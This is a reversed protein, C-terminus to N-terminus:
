DVEIKTNQKELEEIRKTLEKISEVLLPVLKQYQVSLLKEQTAGKEIDDTSHEFNTIAEPLVKQVDQAILGVDRTGRRTYSSKESWDFTYGTLQKVKNIPSEIKILNEKVRKDSVYGIINGTAAVDGEFYGQYTGASKGHIAYKGGVGYVASGRTTFLTGPNQNELQFHGGFFDDETGSSHQIALGRVARIQGTSNSSDTNEATAFLATTATGDEKTTAETKTGIIATASAAGITGGDTAQSYLGYFTGNNFNNRINVISGNKGGQFFVFDDNFGMIQPLSVNTAHTGVSYVSGGNLLRIEPKTITTNSTTSPDFITISGKEDLKIVQQEASGSYFVMESTSGDLEIRSGGSSAGVRIKPTTNEVQLNTTNLDFVSSSVTLNSSEFSIRHGDADGVLFTGDGGLYIGAGNTASTPPSSGLRIEGNNNNGDLIVKDNTSDLRNGNITWGAINGAPASLTGSFTANGNSALKIQGSQGIVVGQDSLGIIQTSGRKLSIGSGSIQIHSHSTPGITTTAGFSATVEAGKRIDVSDSDIFVNQNTGSTKGITVNTGFSSLANGSGDEIDLGASTIVARTAMSASATTLTSGTAAALSASTAHISSSANQSGSISTADIGALDGGTINVTGTITAATATLAGAHTVRFPPTGGTGATFAFSQGTPFMGVGTSTLGTPAISFGGVQGSTATIKGTLFVNESFLGFGPNSGVQASSLGSLDGLRAKLDVDFVGSGTREVIDIYPTTIDNPNANLRIYGTNIKGTSVIVQGPEYSSSNQAVEAISGSHKAGSFTESQGYGREVMIRGRTDNDNTGDRSSSIVRVYETNFGTGSVKKLILVENQEFGTVNAVSMTVQSASVANSGTITTSNAVILQGGVSNISEKEFVTTALTGRIKAQEVELFGNNEASLRFGRLGSVFNSTEILGSSDIILNNSSITNNSLTWGGVKGGTFLVTSGTIQGSSGSIILENSDSTLTETNINFGGIQGASASIAGQSNVQFGSSSIFLNGKDFSSGNASGSFFFNPSGESGNFLSASGITFGGILGTSATISGEFTAGSAILIGDKDVMFNPGFKIFFNDPAEETPTFDIYYENRLQDFAAATDSGPGQDTKFITSTNADMTINSGSIKGEVIQFNGIHGGSASVFGSMTVNGATDVSFNSSSIQLNGQSGSIFSGTHVASPDQGLFFTDTVVEFQSPNTRFKLYRDVSGHADVIELGVGEYSESATIRTGVSGSFLMFGGKNNSITSDFGNYGVSRLYAPNVGYMELSEGILLSGSLVGDLGDAIVQRPGQFTVGNVQATTEALNNNSDYFEVLFDFKDGRRVPRPMPVLVKFFSPNFNTESFPELSVDQIIFKGSNLEFKIWTKPSGSGASRFRGVIDPIFGENGLTDPVNVEGLFFDDDGNDGTIASGSLYVKLSAFNTDVIDNNNDRRESTSKTFHSNFRVVYDVNRELDFSNKTRFTVKDDLSKVSGSIEVGDILKENNLSVFPSTETTTSSSVWNNALVSGTHFFGINEYQNISNTDVLVNEPVVFTDYVEEFDTSTGADRTYIKARYVDGSFTRLNGITLNAYSRQFIQSETETKYTDYTISISGQKLSVPIKQLTDDTVYYPESVEFTTENIVKSITTSYSTPLTYRTSPYKSTDVLTHPNTVSLTAGVLDSTIKNVPNDQGAQLSVVNGVITYKRSVNKQKKKNRKDKQVNRKSSPKSSEIQVVKGINDDRIPM